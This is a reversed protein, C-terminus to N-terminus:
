RFIHTSGLRFSLRTGRMRGNAAHPFSFNAAFCGYVLLNEAEVFNKCM